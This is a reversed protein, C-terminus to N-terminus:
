AINQDLYFMKWRACQLLDLHLVSVPFFSCNLLNNNSITFFFVRPNHASNSLPFHIKGTESIPHVQNQTRYLKIKYMEDIGCM